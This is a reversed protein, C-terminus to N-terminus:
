VDQPGIFVVQVALHRHAADAQFAFVPDLGQSINEDLSGLQVLLMPEGGLRIGQLQFKLAGAVNQVKHFVDLVQHQCFLQRGQHSFGGLGPTTGAILYRGLHQLGLAEKREQHRAQVNFVLRGKGQLHLFVAQQIGQDSGPTQGKAVAVDLVEAQIGVVLAAGDISSEASSRQLQAAPFEQVVVYTELGVVVM